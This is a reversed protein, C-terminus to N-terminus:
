GLFFLFLFENYEVIGLFLGVFIAKEFFFLVCESEFFFWSKKAVIGGSKGTFEPFFSFFFFFVFSFFCFFVLDALLKV